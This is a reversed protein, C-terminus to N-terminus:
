LNKELNKQPEVKTRLVKLATSKIGTFGNPFGAEVERLWDSYRILVVDKKMFSYQKVDSRMIM